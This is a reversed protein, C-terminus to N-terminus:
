VLTSKSGLFPKILDTVLARSILPHGVPWILCGGCEAPLNEFALKISSIQGLSVDPNLLIHVSRQALLPQIHAAHAGLVVIPEPLMTQQLTDLICTLFTEAGLPLLAKPFGMRRSEGAALVVPVVAKM